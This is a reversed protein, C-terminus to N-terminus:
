RVGPADKRLERPSMGLYRSFLRSLSYENGLGAMPAIAKLPLNTTLVISRAFDIRLMRVDNMPTRGTLAKYSRSFHYKSMGAHRALDDLTLAADINERVYSRVESVLWPEERDALRLFEELLAALFASGARPARTSASRSEELLWSALLRCRGGQDHVLLPAGDLAEGTRFGAYTIEVPDRGDSSEEHPTEARYLMVDGSRARTERGDIRVTMRGGTVVILECFSHSHPAMYWAPDPELHGVNLLDPDHSPKQAISTM